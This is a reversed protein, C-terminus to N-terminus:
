SNIVLYALVELNLHFELIFIMFLDIKNLLQLTVLGNNLGSDEESNQNLDTIDEIQGYGAM